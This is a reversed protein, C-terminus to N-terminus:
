YFVKCIMGVKKKGLDVEESYVSPQSSGTANIAIVQLRYTTGPDLGEVLYSLEHSTITNDTSSQEEGVSALIDMHPPVGAVENAGKSEVSM